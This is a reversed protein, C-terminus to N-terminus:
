RPDNKRDMRDLLAKVAEYGSTSQEVSNLAATYVRGATERSAAVAEKRRERLEEYEHEYPCRVIEARMPHIKTETSRFLWRLARIM